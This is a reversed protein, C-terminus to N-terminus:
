CARHLNLQHHTFMNCHLLQWMGGPNFWMLTTENGMGAGNNAWVKVQYAQCETLSPGVEVLTTSNDYLGDLIVESTGNETLLVDFGFISVGYLSYPKSWKLQVSESGFEVRLNTVPGLTGAHYTNLCVHLILIFVFSYTKVLEMFCVLM